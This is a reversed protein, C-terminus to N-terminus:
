PMRFIRRRRVCPGAATWAAAMDPKKGRKGELYKKFDYLDDYVTPIGIRNVLGMARKVDSYLNEDAETMTEGEKEHLVENKQFNM